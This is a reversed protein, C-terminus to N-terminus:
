DYLVRTEPYSGIEAAELEVAFTLAAGTEDDPGLERTNRKALGFDLLKVVGKATVMVNAPKLDRHTFGKRHAADLIFGASAVAKEVPLPGQLPVGDIWEMVIYNPGVDYIQCINPHNFAAIARAERDFGATFEAKSVKLAVDRDLRADRAKWVEGMGGEGLKSVLQYRDGFKDGPKLDM